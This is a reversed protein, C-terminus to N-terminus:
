WGHLDVAANATFKLHAGEARFLDRFENSATEM